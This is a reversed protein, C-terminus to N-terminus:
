AGRGADCEQHDHSEAPPRDGGAPESLSAFGRKEASMSPNPRPERCRASPTTLLAPQRQETQITNAEHGEPPEAFDPHIAQAYLLIVADQDDIAARTKRFVITADVDVM